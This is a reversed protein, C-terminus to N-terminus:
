KDILNLFAEIDDWNLSEKPFFQDVGIQRAAERYEPLDYGTLIAIPINPLNKKIEQALQLGNMGPLRLDLFILDPPIEKIKKLAEEGSVEEQIVLKSSIGILHEKFLQLFIRNDDVLLVRPM